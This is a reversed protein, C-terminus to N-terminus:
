SSKGVIVTLRFSSGHGPASTVDLDGGMARAMRKVLSLGLGSGGFRRAIGDHAQSFPKFLRGIEAATLGIGSDSVSFTLLWGRPHKAATLKLGVQGRLTFKVANDVLNELAARLRVVDGVVTRPLNAAVDIHCQLGAGQSRTALSVAVVDALERLDFSEHRLPLDRVNMRAADVVLTTLLALHDASSRLAAVWRKEREGLNSSALVESLAIIGTRPTRSDHALEAVVREIANVSTATKKPTSKKAPTKKTISKKRVLKQERPLARAYLARKKRSVPKRTAM